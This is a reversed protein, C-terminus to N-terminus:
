DDDAWREDWYREHRLRETLWSKPSMTILDQVDEDHEMMHEAAKQKAHIHGLRLSDRCAPCYYTMM